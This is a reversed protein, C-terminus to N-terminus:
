IRLRVGRAYDAAFQVCGRGHRLVLTMIDTGDVAGDVHKLVEGAEGQGTDCICRLGHSHVLDAMDNLEHVFGEPFGAADNNRVIYVFGEAESVIADMRPRFTPSVMPIMCVGKAKCYPRLEDREEYPLDPVLVYGVKADVCRQVFGERGYVFIPNYYTMIAIPVDCTKRIDEITDFILDTTVGSSLATAHVGKIEPGGAIPDSFPIELIVMDVGAEAMACVLRGTTEIDPYGAIVHPILAKRSFIRDIEAETM